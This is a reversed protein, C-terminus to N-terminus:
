VSVTVPRDSEDSCFDKRDSGLNDILNCHLGNMVNRERERELDNELNGLLLM